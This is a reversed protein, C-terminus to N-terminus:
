KRVSSTSIVNNFNIEKKNSVCRLTELSVVAHAALVAVAVDEPLVIEALKFLKHHLRGVAESNVEHHGVSSEAHFAVLVDLLNQGLLEVQALEHEGRVNDSRASVKDAFYEIEESGEANAQDVEHVPGKFSDGDM